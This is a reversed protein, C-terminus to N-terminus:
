APHTQAPHDRLNSELGRQLILTLHVVEIQISTFISVAQTPEKKLIQPGSASSNIFM